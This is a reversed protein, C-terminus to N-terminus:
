WILLEEVPQFGLKKAMELSAANTEKAGWVPRQGRAEMVSAMRAFAAQALGRRRYPELTDVAVDWWTETIAVGYCFAAARGDVFTTAVGSSSLGDVLEPRLPPAVHEFAEDQGPGLVRIDISVNEEWCPKECAHIVARAGARGLALEVAARSEPRALIDGYNPRLLLAEQLAARAPEGAVCVLAGTASVVVYDDVTGFAPGGELLASRFEVWGPADPVKELLKDRLTM